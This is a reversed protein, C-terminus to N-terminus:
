SMIIPAVKDAASRTCANRRRLSSVVSTFRSTSLVCSAIIVALPRLAEVFEM